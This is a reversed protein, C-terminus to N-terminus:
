NGFASMPYAERYWWPESTIEAGGTLQNATRAATNVVQPVEAQSVETLEQAQMVPFTQPVIQAVQPAVQAVVQPVVHAVQPAVALPQPVAQVPAIRPLVQTMQPAIQNALDTVKVGDVRVPIAEVAGQGLSGTNVKEAEASVITKIVSSGSSALSSSGARAFSSAESNSLTQVTAQAAESLLINDGEATRGKGGVILSFSGDLLNEQGGGIANHSGRVHNKSGFVAHSTGEATNASGGIICNTCGKFSHNHGM